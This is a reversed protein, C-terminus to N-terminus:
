EEIIEDVINKIYEAASCAATKSPIGLYWLVQIEKQSAYEFDIGGPASALDMFLCEKKLLDIQEKDLLLSPVTNFIIDMTSLCQNLDKLDVENYGMSNILAIDKKKRAECYINAGFGELNRCLMKGIKGYGLVLINSNNLTKETLEIAKSIAGESSAIANYINYEENELLDYYKINELRQIVNEKLGGTILIKKDKNILEILDDIKVDETSIHINDRTFPIPCIVYNSSELSVLENKYLEKLYSSREDQGLVCIKM